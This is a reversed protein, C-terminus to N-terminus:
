EGDSVVGAMITSGVSEGGVESSRCQRLAARVLLWSGTCSCHFYVKKNLTHHSNSGGTKTTSCPLTINKHNYLRSREVMNENEDGKFVFVSM